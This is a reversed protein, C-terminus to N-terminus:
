SGGRSRGGRAWSRFRNGVLQLYTPGAVGFFDNHGAGVVPLFETGAPAAAHLKKGEAFPIVEDRTGHAVLLPTGLRKVRELSPFSGKVLLASLPLWPYIRLGLSSLSAFGSQLVIGACPRQEAVGLAVATGLSEGYFVIREPPVGDAILHDYAAVGDRYVEKESPSGANGGYGSYDFLLTRTGTGVVFDELLSVRSAINGANGHFFIAVPQELDAAPKPRADYAALLRGDARRIRVLEIEAAGTAWRLGEEPAPRNSPFFILKDRILFLFLPLAIQFLALLLLLTPLM